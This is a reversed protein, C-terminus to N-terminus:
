TSQNILTKMEGDKWKWGVKATNLMEGFDNAKFHLTINLSSGPSWSDPTKYWIQIRNEGDVKEVSEYNDEYLNGDKDPNIGYDIYELGEPFIDEILLKDGYKYHDFYPIDGVNEVYVDFYVDDGIGIFEKEVTKNLSLKPEGVCVTAM